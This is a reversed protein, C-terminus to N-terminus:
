LVSTPAAFNWGHPNKIKVIDGPSERECSGTDSWMWQGELENYAYVGSHAFTRYKESREKALRNGAEPLGGGPNQAERIMAIKAPDYPMSVGQSKLARLQEKQEHYRAEPTKYTGSAALRASRKGANVAAKQEQLVNLARREHKDLVSSQNWAAKGKLKANVCMEETVKGKGALVPDEARAKEIAEREAPPIVHMTFKSPKPLHLLAKPPLHEARFNYQYMNPRDHEFNVRMRRKVVPDTFVSQQWEPRAGGLPSADTRKWKNVFAKNAKKDVPIDDPHFVTESPGYTTPGKCSGIQFRAKLFTPESGDM